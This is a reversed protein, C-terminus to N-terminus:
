ILPHCAIFFQMFSCSYLHDARKIKRSRGFFGSLHYSQCTEAKLHLKSKFAPVYSPVGVIVQVFYIGELSSSDFRWLAKRNNDILAALIKPNSGRRFPFTVGVKGLMSGLPGFEANISCDSNQTNSPIPPLIGYEEELKPSLTLIYLGSEGSGRIIDFELDIRTVNLGDPPFLSFSFQCLFYRYGDEPPVWGKPLKDEVKWCVPRGIEAIEFLKKDKSSSSTM